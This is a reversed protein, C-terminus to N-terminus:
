RTVKIKRPHSQTIKFSLEEPKRDHLGIKSSHSCPVKTKRNIILCGEFM